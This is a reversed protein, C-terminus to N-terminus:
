RNKDGQHLLRWTGGFRRNKCSGCPTVVWFVGNKHLIDDEPIYFGQKYKVPSVNRRWKLTWGTLAIYSKLIERRDSHLIGDEPINRRTTRKLVSTECSSLAEMMLTVLNSSNYFKLRDLLRCVSRLDFFELGTYIMHAIETPWVTRHCTEEAYKQKMWPQYLLGM